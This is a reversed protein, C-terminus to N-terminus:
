LNDLANHNILVDQSPGNGVGFPMTLSEYQGDPTVFATKEISEHHIPIQHHFGSSAMDLSTFLEM